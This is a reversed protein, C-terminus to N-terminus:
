KLSIKFFNNKSLFFLDKSDKQWLIQDPPFNTIFSVNVNDRFDTETVYIGGSTSYIIHFNDLWDVSLIDESDELLKIREWQFAKPQDPYDKLYFNYITKGSSFALVNFHPSLAFENVNKTITQFKYKQPNLYYLSSDELLFINEDELMVLQYKKNPNITKPQLNSISILELSSGSLFTKYVFGNDAFLYISDKFPEIDLINIDSIFTKVPVIEFNQTLLFLKEKKNEEALFVIEGSNRPNFFIKSINYKSLPLEIFQNNHNINFLFFHPMQAADEIILIAKQIDQSIFLDKLLIKKPKSSLGLLIDRSSILEKKQESNLDFLWLSWNENNEFKKLIVSQHNPLVFFREINQFLLKNPYEKKFLHINKAETVFMALVPLQKEWSQYGDKKVLIHYKKPLLDDIFLSDFVLNTKKYLIHNLYVTAGTPQIKLFLGGTKVIKKSELDFRYGQSYLIITPATILFLVLLLLFLISKQKKTM